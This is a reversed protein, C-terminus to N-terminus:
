GVALADFGARDIQLTGFQQAITDSLGLNVAGKVDILKGTLSLSAESPLTSIGGQVSPRMYGDRSAAFDAIGALLVYPASLSVNTTPDVGDAVTLAGSYIRLERAMHLNVDGDFSVVGNSFLSLSSFGGDELQNVGLKAHGFALDSEDAPAVEGSDQVLVLERMVRVSDCVSNAYNPADLAVTLRGGSAGPGGAVARLTGQLYLGNSSAVQISGGDSAVTRVGRGDLDMDAQTGSVDVVAGKRIVVFANSSPARSVSELLEGGLVISGAEGVVGYPRGLGDYTVYSM